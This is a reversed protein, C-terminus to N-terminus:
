ATEMIRTRWPAHTGRRDVRLVDDLSRPAARCRIKRCEAGSEVIVAIRSFKIKGALFAAVAVENAANLTAPAAGGVEAAERALRTAPFRTEDPEFFSLEGIKPM